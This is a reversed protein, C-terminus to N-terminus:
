DPCLAEASVGSIAVAWYGDHEAVEAKGGKSAALRKLNEVAVTEDVFVTVAGGAAPDKLARMAMIVPKPCRQGKADVEVAM